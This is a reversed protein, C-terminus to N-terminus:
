VFYQNHDPSPARQLVRFITMDTTQLTGPQPVEESLQLFLELNFCWQSNGQQLKCNRRSPHKNQESYQKISQM